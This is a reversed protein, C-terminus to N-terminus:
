MIDNAGVSQKLPTPAKKAGVFCFRQPTALFGPMQRDAARLNYVIRVVMADCLMIYLKNCLIMCLKNIFYQMISQM